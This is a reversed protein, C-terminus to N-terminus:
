REEGTVPDIGTELTGQSLRTLIVAIDQQDLLSLAGTKERYPALMIAQNAASLPQVGALPAGARYQALANLVALSPNLYVSTLVHDAGATAGGDFQTLYVDDGSGIVWAGAQAVKVLAANGAEGAASFFVDVGYLRYKAALDVVNATDNLNLVDLNDVQCKPCTYRVGHLFGNRYKRGVASQPDGIVAVRKAQTVFGATLGAVFGAQDERTAGGLALLNPLGGTESLHLCIFYSKPFEGAVARGEAELTRDAVVIVAAGAQAAARLDPLAPDPKWSAQWGFDQMGAKINQFLAEAPAGGPALLMVLPPAATPPVPTASPPVPTATPAAATATPPALTVTPAVPTITPPPVTATVVTTAAPSSSAATPRAPTSACGALALGAVAFFLFLKTKM